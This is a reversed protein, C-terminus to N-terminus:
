EGLLEQRQHLSNEKQGDERAFSAKPSRIYLYGPSLTSVGTSHGYGKTAVRCERAQRWPGRQGPCSVGAMSEYQVWAGGQDVALGSRIEGDVQPTGGRGPNSPIHCAGQGHALISAEEKGPMSM